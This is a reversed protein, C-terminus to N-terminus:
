GEGVCFHLEVPCYPFKDKISIKNVVYRTYLFLNFLGLGAALPNAQTVLILTGTAASVAAFTLAHRSTLLGRVLVRNKTRNMQSDFPVELFQNITNASASIFGVGITSLALVYPDFVDVPALCFGGASTACM